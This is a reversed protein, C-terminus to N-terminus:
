RRVHVTASATPGPPEIMQWHLTYDGPPTGAPIALEMAYIANPQYQFGSEYLKGRDACNLLFEGKARTGVLEERYIPCDDESFLRGQSEPDTLLVQYELRQGARVPAVSLVAPVLETTAFSDADPAFELQGGKTGGNPVSTPCTSPTGQESDVPIVQHQGDWELRLCVPLWPEDSGRLGLPSPKNDAWSGPLLVVAAPAPTVDGHV